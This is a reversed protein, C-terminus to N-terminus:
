GPVRFEASFEFAFKSFLTGNTRLSGAGGGLSIKRIKHTKRWLFAPKGRWNPVEKPWLSGGSHGNAQHLPATPRKRWDVKAHNAKKIGHLAAREYSVLGFTM